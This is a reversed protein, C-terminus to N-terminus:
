KSKTFDPHQSKMHRAVNTFSRNCCPCVGNGIRNKLRTKAAKQARTANKANRVAQDKWEMQKRSTKLQQGLSAVEAMLKEKESDSSFHQRHGFPCYFWEHSERLRDDTENAIAFLVHCNCCEITVFTTAVQFAHGTKSM